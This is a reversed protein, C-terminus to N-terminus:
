EETVGLMKNISGNQPVMPYVDAEPTVQCDVVVPGPTKLAEEL